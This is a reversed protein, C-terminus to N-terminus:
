DGQAGFAARLINFDGISVVGDGNLDAWPNWNTSTPTSGFAQRLANFDGISVMNDRNVDGNRLTFAAGSLGTSTLTQNPLM